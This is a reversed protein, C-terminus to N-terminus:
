KLLDLIQGQGKVRHDQGKLINYDKDIDVRVGIKTGIWSITYTNHGFGCSVLWGVCQKNYLRHGCPGRSSCTFLLISLM